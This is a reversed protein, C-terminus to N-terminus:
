AVRCSQLLRILRRADLRCNVAAVVGQRCIAKLLLTGGEEEIEALLHQPDSLVEPLTAYFQRDEVLRAKRLRLVVTPVDDAPISATNGTGLVVVDLLGTKRILGALSDPAKEFDTLVVLRLNMPDPATAIPGQSIEIPGAAHVVRLVDDPRVKKPTLVRSAASGAACLEDMTSDSSNLVVCTKTLPTQQCIATIMDTATGDPLQMATILLHPVQRPVLGLAEAKSSIVDVRTAGARVAADKMMAAMMKSPEIIVVSKLSVEEHMTLDDSVTLARHTDIQGLPVKTTGSSRGGYKQVLALLDEAMERVDQYRDAPRKAMARAIIQDCEDPISTLYDKSRPIPKNIHAMMTQVISACDQYPYRATLLRFLSAGLSYVDTRSDVETSEFQEPSMYQPTGLIQGQKTVATRTDNAADVLKSLGFDVVKVLGEKTQMLNEPKIDRHVMGAVHAAGLGSAAQAIKQCAEQWALPGTKEVLEALSGGSILEMVLYYQANWVDIDYISVVNPHNLKGISRAEQLFRQLAIKSAAVDPSLVKIAVEREILTDFGLYVAGMGGSGLKARIEYKGIKTDVQQPSSSGDGSTIAEFGVITKTDIDSKPISGAEAITPSKGLEDEPTSPPSTESSM